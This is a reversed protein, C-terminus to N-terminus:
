EYGRGVERKAGQYGCVIDAIYIQMTVEVAKKVTCSECVASLLDTSQQRVIM